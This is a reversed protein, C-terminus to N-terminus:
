RSSSPVTWRRSPSPPGQRSPTWFDGNCPRVCTDVAAM